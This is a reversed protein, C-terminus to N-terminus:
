FYVRVQPKAYFSLSYCSIQGNRLIDNMDNRSATERYVSETQTLLRGGGKREECLVCVRGKRKDRLLHFISVLITLVDELPIPRYLLLNLIGEIKEELIASEIPACFRDFM